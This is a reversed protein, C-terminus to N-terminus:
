PIAGQRPTKGAGAPTIGGTAGAERGFNLKGRVQPPSGLTTHGYLLTTDNEGCRRPHDQFLILAPLSVGTKGAGAPTIRLVYTFPVSLFRKGRVQPPSGQTYFAIPSETWNEGCRRPHDKMGQGGKAFLITKGAGAPTIRGRSITGVGAGPKGRVQPPSGRYRLGRYLKLSNEGCRRPHDEFTSKSIKFKLTKGAGAPTIRFDEIDGIIKDHKGRVQPPSGLHRTKNPNQRLNEGCRRPHDRSRSNRSRRANTKGAGAPTIGLKPVDAFYM